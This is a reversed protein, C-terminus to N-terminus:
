IFLEEDQTTADSRRRQQQQGRIFDLGVKIGKLVAAVQTVPGTVTRRVKSGTEELV